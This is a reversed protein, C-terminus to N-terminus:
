PDEYTIVCTVSSQNVLLNGTTHTNANSTSGGSTGCDISTARTAALSTADSPNIKALPTFNVTITSLPTNGFPAVTPSEGLAVSVNRDVPDGNGDVPVTQKWGTEGVEHVTYSGPNVNSFTYAGTQDSTASQLVTNGQKLQFRFGQLPGDLGNSVGDGNIDKFKTGSVTSPTFADSGSGACSPYGSLTFTQAVAKFNTPDNNIYWRWTIIDNRRLSGVSGKHSGGTLSLPVDANVFGGGNVSYRAFVGTTGQPLGTVEFNATAFCSNGFDVSHTGGIAVTVQESVPAPDAAAPVVTSGDIGDAGPDTNFFPASNTGITKTANANETVTYTGAVLTSLGACDTLAGSADTTGTCSFGGGNKAVTISWGALDAATGAADDNDGDEDRDIYKTVSLGGCNAINVAAPPVFDKLAATFSDSSRSKLYM